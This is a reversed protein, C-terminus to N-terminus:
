LTPKPSQLGPTGPTATVSLPLAQSPGDTETAQNGGHSPCCCCCGLSPAVAMYLLPHLCIALPVLGRTVQHGLYSGLSLAAVAQAENAFGPCREQWRQRARVNLVRTVHYPLYSGAYLAVGSVVLVAVHLKEAATVGPSHAVARGLAGYAALALLLPLGCGVVALVLSYAWYAGLRSGDATGLCRVHAEKGEHQLSAQLHSFSLTPAALLAALAWGAVSVAWAHKPQLHSRALFPHVTGLYRNLSICTIFFVSGLLNCTFLFHELRCAAEGYCWHKPPYFYAALPPLTLAYLLDSVALQASFVVAPHWPRRERTGFRYLALGNGTVAVLFEAVLVPWLFDEQFRSLHRDAAGSFNGPCPKAGPAAAM